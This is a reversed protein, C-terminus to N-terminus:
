LRVVKGTGMIGRMGSKPVPSAPDEAGLTICSNTGSATPRAARRPIAAIWGLVDCLEELIESISGPGCSADVSFPAM